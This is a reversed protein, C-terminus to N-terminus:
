KETYTVSSAVNCEKGVLIDADLDGELSSFDNKTMHAFAEVEEDTLDYGAKRLFEGSDDGLVARKFIEDSLMRMIVKQVDERSM